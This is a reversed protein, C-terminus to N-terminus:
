TESAGLNAIRQTVVMPVRAERRATKVGVQFAIFYIIGHSELAVTKDHDAEDQDM